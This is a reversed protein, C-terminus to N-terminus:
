AAPVKEDTRMEEALTNQNTIAASALMGDVMMLAFLLWATIVHANQKQALFLKRDTGDRSAKELQTRIDAISMEIFKRIGLTELLTTEFIPSQGDPPAGSAATSQSHRKIDLTPKKLRIIDGAM